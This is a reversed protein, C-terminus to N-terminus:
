PQNRKWKLAADQIQFLAQEAADPDDADRVATIAKIELAPSIVFIKGDELWDPITGKLIEEGIMCVGRGIQRYWCMAERDAGTFGRDGRAKRERAAAIREIWPIHAM